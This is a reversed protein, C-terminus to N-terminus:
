TPKTTIKCFEKMLQKKLRLNATLSGGTFLPAMIGGALGM